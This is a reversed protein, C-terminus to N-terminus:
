WWNWGFSGEFCGRATVEQHKFFFSWPVKKSAARARSSWSMGLAALLVNWWRRPLPRQVEAAVAGRAVHTRSTPTVLIGSLPVCPEPFGPIMIFGRGVFFLAPSQHGPLSGLFKSVGIQFFVPPKPQNILKQHITQHSADQGFLM